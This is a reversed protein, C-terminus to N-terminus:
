ATQGIETLARKLAGPPLAAPDRAMLAAVRRAFIDYTAAFAAPQETEPAAAPDPVGWHVQVPAGPWIPCTEAAASDCVTIVADMQPADSAAFVDWSKSRLAATDHGHDALIRLSNPHVAGAPHSGASWARIRGPDAANLLTELIISRASNGTCLVLINM